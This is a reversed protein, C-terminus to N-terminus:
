FYKGLVFKHAMCKAADQYYMGHYLCLGQSLKEDLLSSLGYVVRKHIM